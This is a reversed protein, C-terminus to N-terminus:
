RGTVEVRPPNTPLGPVSAIPGVTLIVGNGRNERALQIALSRAAAAIVTAAAGCLQPPGGRIVCQYTLTSIIFTTSNGSLLSQLARTQENNLEFRLSCELGTPRAGCSVSPAPLETTAQVTATYTVRSRCIETGQPITTYVIETFGSARGGPSFVGRVTLVSRQTGDPSVRDFTNGFTHNSSIPLPRVNGDALAYSCRDGQLTGPLFLSATTGDASVTLTMQGRQSHIGTYTAGPVHNADAPSATFAVGALLALALVGAVTGRGRFSGVFRALWIGSVM